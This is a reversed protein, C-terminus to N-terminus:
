HDADPVEPGAYTVRLRLIEGRGKKVEAEPSYPFQVRFLTMHPQVMTPEIARDARHPYQKAIFEADDLWGYYTGEPDETVIVPEPKCGYLEVARPHGFYHWEGKYHDDRAAHM